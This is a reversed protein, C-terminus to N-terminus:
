HTKPGMMDVLVQAAEMMQVQQHKTLNYKLCAEWADHHEWLHKHLCSRHKYQKGCVSCSCASRGPSSSSRSSVSGLEPSSSAYRGPSDHLQLPSRSHTNVVSPLTSLYHM